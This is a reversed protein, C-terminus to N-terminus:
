VDLTVYAWTENYKREVYAWEHKDVSLNWDRSYYTYLYWPGFGNQIWYQNAANNCRYTIVWDDSRQDLCLGNGQNTFASNNSRGRWVWQQYKDGRDCAQLRVDRQDDPNVWLCGKKAGKAHQILLRGSPADNVSPGQRHVASSGASAAPAAASGPISGTLAAAGALAAVILRNPKFM